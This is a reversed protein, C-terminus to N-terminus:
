KIRAKIANLFEEKRGIVDKLVEADEKKIGVGKKKFMQYILEIDDYGEESATYIREMDDKSYSNGIIEDFVNWMSETFIGNEKFFELFDSPKLGMEDFILRSVDASIEEWEEPSMIGKAINQNMSVLSTVIKRPNLSNASDDSFKHFNEMALRLKVEKPFDDKLTNIVKAPYDLKEMVTWFYTGKANPIASNFKDASDTVKGDTSITM